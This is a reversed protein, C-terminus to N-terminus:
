KVKYVSDAKISDIVPKNILPAASVSQAPSLESTKFQTYFGYMQNIGILVGIIGGIVAVMYQWWVRKKDQYADVGAQMDSGKRLKNIEEYDRALKDNVQNLERNVYNQHNKFDNQVVQVCTALDGIKRSQDDHKEVLTKIDERSAEVLGSLKGLGELIRDESM